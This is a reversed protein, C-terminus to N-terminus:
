HISFSWNKGLHDFNTKPDAKFIGFVASGSGSMSAYAAGSNYIEQKVKTIKPYLKFVSEEFDNKLENRWTEIPQKLIDRIDKTHKKPKIHKYADITSVHIEPYIVVFKYTSFNIDLDTFVDGIGETFVIKNKVFFSCDAGLQASLSLLKKESINLNFLNNLGLLCSAADSSGGGLGAGIPINKLLDLDVTPIEYSESLLIFAREVLNIKGDSPIKIGTTSFETKRKKNVTIELADNIPVPILVSEINHYGDDRKKVIHLGLNIKANPFVVM